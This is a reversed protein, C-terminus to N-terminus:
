FKGSREPIKLSRRAALPQQKTATKRWNGLVEPESFKVTPLFYIKRCAHL